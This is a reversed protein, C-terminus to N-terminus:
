SASDPVEAGVGFNDVFFPEEGVVTESGDDASTPAEQAKFYFFVVFLGFVPIDFGFQAGLRFEFGCM